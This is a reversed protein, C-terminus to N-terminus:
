DQRESSDLSEHRSRVGTQSWKRVMREHTEEAEIWTHSRECDADSEGDIFVMTEFLVPPGGFFNHDLGLFVTSVAGGPVGTMAVRRDATELWEAWTLLDPELVPTQGVLIYKGFGM